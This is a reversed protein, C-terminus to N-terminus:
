RPEHKKERLTLIFEWETKSVPMVSLRNGPKLLLMSKLTSYTKLVSLPIVTKFLEQCRVSVMYWRPNTKSSKPDYYKSEPDWATFDPHSEAVITVIGAIGPTECNSHYFFALDHMKMNDRMYNRAQYNRVGEWPTTQNPAQSLDMISFTSPESKLLWFNPTAALNTTTSNSLDKKPSSGM